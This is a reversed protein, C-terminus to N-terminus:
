MLNIIRPTILFLRVTKIHEERRDRFMAGILPLDGLIPVKGIDSQNREYYYGGVLLSENEDIVAQTSISSNKITPLNKVDQSSSARAGDLINVSLHIKRGTPEEVIRPTVKLVSGYTVPFLQADERGAVEVYFTQSNDLVAEMNDLTLVSPRALVKAKGNSSLMNIRTYLHGNSTDVITSFSDTDGSFPNFEIFNGSGSTLKWQVGLREMNNTDIDIISVNVEVQSLPKDLTNILSAYMPMKSELDRIIVANLRRDANIFVNEVSVNPKNAPDSNKAVGNTGIPKVGQLGMISQQPLSSLNINGGGQVIQRLTTAIGPIVVQQDRFSFSRDDAWAYKLPFVRVTIKSRLKEGAKTDMLKATQMVLEMYRPPGSLYILGEVPRSRWYFRNDWIGMEILINRFDDTDMYNLSIIEKQIENSDYVYLTNGDFYWLLNHIKALKDLFAVPNLPGIKGNVTGKVSESIVVPMAYNSAFHTLVESVLEDNGYYAYPKTGFAGSDENDPSTNERNVIRSEYHMQEQAMDPLNWPVESEKDFSQREQQPMEQFPQDEFSPPVEQAHFEEQVALADPMYIVQGAMVNDPNSIGNYGALHPLAYGYMAAVESLTEGPQVIHSRPQINEFSAASRNYDSSNSAQLTVPWVFLFYTIFVLFSKLAYKLYSILSIFFHTVFRQSNDFTLHYPASGNAM